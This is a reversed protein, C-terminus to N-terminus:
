IVILKWYNYRSYLSVRRALRKAFDLYLADLREAVREAEELTQRRKTALQGLRDWQSCIIQLCFLLRLEHIGWRPELETKIM